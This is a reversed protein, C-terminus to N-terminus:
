RDKDEASELAELEVLSAQAGVVGAKIAREIWLRAEPLDVPGGRGKALLESYYLYGEAQRKACAARFLERARALDREVFEGDLYIRGLTVYALGLEAEVLAELAEIARAPDQEIGKGTLRAVALAHKGESVGRAAARQFWRVAEEFDQEVGEGTFYASGVLLLSAADGKLAAQRAWFFAAPLDPPGWVDQRLTISYDRMGGPHGLFASRKLWTAGALPQPRHRGVGGFLATGYAALAAADGGKIGTRLLALAREVEEDSSRRALIKGGLEAGCRAHGLKAGKELWRTASGLREQRLAKSGQILSVRFCADPDGGEAAAVLEQIWQGARESVRDELTLLGYLSDIDGRGAAALYLGRAREFDVELGAFGQSYVHGLGRLARASGLRVGRELEKVARRERLAPDLGPGRRTMLLLALESPAELDGEDAARGLLREAEDLDQPGDLGVKLRLARARLTREPKPASKASSPRPVTPAVVAVARPTPPASPATAVTRPAVWEDGASKYLAALALGVGVLLGAVGALTSALGVRRGSAAGQEALSLSALLEGGDAFRAAPDKELCRLILQSLAPPTERRLEGPARPARNETAVVAEWFTQGSVPPVGTLAAYLVAGVGYVDTYPGSPRAAAQEPAWYGPTGLIAGTKSLAQSEEVELDKALGFDTLVWCILGGAEKRILNEPKLDRHILGAAHVYSLAASLQEALDWVEDIPLPGHRALREGLTAGEVLPMALWPSGAQSEGADLVSLLNDHRLRKLAEIERRFRERQQPSARGGTRLVKLAVEVGSKRHRGRYVSGVGGQGIQDLVEYPGM